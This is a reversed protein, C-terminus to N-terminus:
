IDGQALPLSHFCFRARDIDHEISQRQRQRLICRRRDDGTPHAPNFFIDSFTAGSQSFYVASGWFRRREEWLCREVLSFM